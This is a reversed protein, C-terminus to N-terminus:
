SKGGKRWRGRRWLPASNPQFDPYRV